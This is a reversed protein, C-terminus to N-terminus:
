LFDEEFEKRQYYNEIKKAVKKNVKNYIWIITMISSLIRWTFITRKNSWFIFKLILSTIILSIFTASLSKSNLKKEINELKLERISM